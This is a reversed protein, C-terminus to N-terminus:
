AAATPASVVEAVSSSKQRKMQLNKFFNKFGGNLGSSTTTPAFGSSPEDMPKADANNKFKYMFKRKSKGTAAYQKLMEPDFDTQTAMFSSFKAHMAEIDASKGIMVSSVYAKRVSTPIASIGDTYGQAVAQASVSARFDQAKSSYGALNDQVSQPLQSAAYGNAAAYSQVEQRQSYKASAVQGDGVANNNNAPINYQQASVIAATLAFIVQNIHLNM